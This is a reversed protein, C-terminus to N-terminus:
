KRTYTITGSNVWEGDPMQDYFMDTMTGDDNWKSVIKMPNDGMPTTSTGKMVMQDNEKDGTMYIINTTMTDMWTSVYRKHANDYGMYSLGEFPQGMLDMKFNSKIFRGGLVWETSMTGSGEMPPADPGMVFSTKATWNGIAKGLEKHQSGPEGIKAMQAMMDEPSMEQMKDMEDQTVKDNEPDNGSDNGPGSAVMLVLSAASAAGAAFALITTQKFKYM